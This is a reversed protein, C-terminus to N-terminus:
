DGSCACSATCKLAAKACNSRGICGKMSDRHILEHCSKSVQPLTTWLSPWGSTEKTWGWDSPCPIPWSETGSDPELLLTPRYVNVSDQHTTPTCGTNPSHMVHLGLSTHSSSSAQMMWKWSAVAGTRDYIRVVFRELLSMSEESNGYKLCRNGRLVSEM